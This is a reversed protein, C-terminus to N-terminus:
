SGGNSNVPFISLSVNLSSGGGLTALEPVSHSAGLRISRATLSRSRDRSVTARAARASRARSSEGSSSVSDYRRRISSSFGFILAYMVTDASRARASARGLVKRGTPDAARQMPDRDRQLVQELGLSDARGATRLDMRVVNGYAVARDRLAELM